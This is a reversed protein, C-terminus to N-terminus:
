RKKRSEGYLSQYMVKDQRLSELLEEVDKILEKLAAARTEIVTEISGGVMMEGDYMYLMDFDNWQLTKTAM